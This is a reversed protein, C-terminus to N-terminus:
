IALPFITNGIGIKIAALNTYFIDYHFRPHIRGNEREPDDDFRIYGDEFIALERIVLKTDDSLELDDYECDISAGENFYEKMQSVMALNVELRSGRTSVHLCGDVNEIIFPFVMSRHSGSASLIIRSIPDSIVRLSETPQVHNGVRNFQSLIVSVVNLVFLICEIRHAWGM